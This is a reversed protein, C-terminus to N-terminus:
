EPIRTGRFVLSGKGTREPLEQEVAVECSTQSRGSVLVHPVAERYIAQHPVDINQISLQQRVRRSSKTPPYAPEGLM